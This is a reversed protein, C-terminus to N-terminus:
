WEFLKLVFQFFYLYIQIGMKPSASDILRHVPGARGSGVKVSKFISISFQLRMKGISKADLPIGNTALDISFTHNCDM